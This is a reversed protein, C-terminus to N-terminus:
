VGCRKRPMDRNSTGRFFFPFGHYVKGPKKILDIRANVVINRAAITKQALCDIKRKATVVENHAYANVPEFGASELRREGRLSKCM